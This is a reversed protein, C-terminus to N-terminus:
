WKFIVNRGGPLEELIASLPQQQLNLEPALTCLDMSVHALQLAHCSDVYAKCKSGNGSPRGSGSTSPGLKDLRQNVDVFGEFTERQLRKM